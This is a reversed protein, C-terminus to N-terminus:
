ARAVCLSADDSCADTEAADDDVPTGKPKCARLLAVGCIVAMVFALVALQARRMMPGAGAAKRFAETERSGEPLPEREALPSAVLRPAEVPPAPISPAAIGDTFWKPPLAAAPPPVNTRAMRRKGPKKSAKGGHNRGKGKRGHKRNDERM